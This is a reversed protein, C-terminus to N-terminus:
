KLKVNAREFYEDFYRIVGNRDMAVALDYLNRGFKNKININANGAELLTQVLPLNGNITAIMLASKNDKDLVNADAKFRLLVKAVDKSCNLSAGRLLPTWGNVNDKANVDAGDYLMYEVVEPNNSDVAYHIASLGASDKLEYRAENSRLLKVIDLKGGFAAMMLATKGSENQANVDAGHAILLEIM